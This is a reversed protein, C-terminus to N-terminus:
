LVNIGLEDAYERVILVEELSVCRSIDDYDYAHYEPRYQAMINVSANPLKENIWKIIPKSCCEIHNPM